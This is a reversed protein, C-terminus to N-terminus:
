LLEGCHPCVKHKEDMDESDTPDFEKEAMDLTFNHIGLMDVNFDPGLEGIDFNIKSVNLEAWAAIALHILNKINLQFNKSVQAFLPSNEAM